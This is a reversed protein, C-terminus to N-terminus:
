FKKTEDHGGSLLKSLEVAEKRRGEESSKWWALVRWFGFAMSAIATAMGSLAWKCLDHDM